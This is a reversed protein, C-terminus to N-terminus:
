QGKKCFVDCTVCVKSEMSMSPKSVITAGMPRGWRSQKTARNFYYPRGDPSVHEEWVDPPAPRESDRSATNGERFDDPRTWSSKKLVANYYYTRGDKPSVHKTWMGVREQSSTFNCGPSNVCEV